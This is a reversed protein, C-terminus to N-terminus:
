NKMYKILFFFIKTLTPIILNSVTHLHYNSVHDNFVLTCFVGGGGGVFFFFDLVVFDM